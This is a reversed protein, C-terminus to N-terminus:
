PSLRGRIDEAIRRHEVLGGTLILMTNEDEISRDQTTQEMADDYGEIWSDLREILYACEEDTLVIVRSM